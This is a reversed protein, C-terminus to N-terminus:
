ENMRKTTQRVVLGFVRGFHTGWLSNNENM